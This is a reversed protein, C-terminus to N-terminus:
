HSSIPVIDLTKGNPGTIFVQPGPMGQGGDSGSNGSNADHINTFSGTAGANGGKGGQGGLGGNNFYTICKCHVFEIASSDFSVNISGGIGGDGGNGGSGGDGPSHKEDADHGEDGEGGWGGEGGNAWIVLRGYRPNVFYTTAAKGGGIVSIVIKLLSSDQVLISSIRVNLHPGPRGNKGNTGNQPLRFLQNMFGMRDHGDKARKPTFVAGRTQNVKSYNLDSAPPPTPGQSFGPHCALLFAIGYLLPHRM